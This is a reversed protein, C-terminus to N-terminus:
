YSKTIFFIILIAGFIGIIFWIKLPKKNKEKSLRIGLLGLIGNM